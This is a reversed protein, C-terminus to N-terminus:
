SGPLSRIDTVYLKGDESSMFVQQETTSHRRANGVDAFPAGTDIVVHPVGTHVAYPKDAAGDPGIDRCIEVTYTRDPMATVVVKGRDTPM